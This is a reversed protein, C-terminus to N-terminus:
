THLVKSHHVALYRTVSMSIKALDTSPWHILSLFNSPRLIGWGRLPYCFVVWTICYRSNITFKDTKTWIVVLLLSGKINLERTTVWCRDEQNIDVQVVDDAFNGGLQPTNLCSTTRVQDHRIASCIKGSTRHRIIMLSHYLSLERNRNKFPIHLRILPITSLSRWQGMPILMCVTAMSSNTKPLPICEHPGDVIWHGLSVKCLFKRNTSETNYDFFNTAFKTIQLYPMWRATQFNIKVTQDLHKELHNSHTWSETLKPLSYKSFFTIGIKVKFHM